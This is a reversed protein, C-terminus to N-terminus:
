ERGGRLRPGLAPTAASSSRQIGAQAPFSPSNLAPSAWAAARSTQTGPDLGLVSPSLRIGGFQIGPRACRSGPGGDPYPALRPPLGRSLAPTETQSLPLNLASFAVRDGVGGEGGVKLPMLASVGSM